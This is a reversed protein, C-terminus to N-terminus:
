ATKVEKPSKINWAQRIKQLTFRLPYGDRNWARWADEETLFFENNYIPGYHGIGPKYETIMDRSSDLHAGGLFELKGPDLKWVQRKEDDFVTVFVPIM